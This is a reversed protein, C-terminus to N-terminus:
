VSEYEAWTDSKILNNNAFYNHKSCLQKKLDKTITKTEIQNNIIIYPNHDGRAEKAKQDCGGYQSAQKLHKKIPFLVSHIFSHIFSYRWRLFASYGSPATEQSKYWWCGKVICRKVHTQFFQVAQQAAIANNERHVGRLSCVPCCQVFIM